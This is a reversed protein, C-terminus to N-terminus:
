QRAAAKERLFELVVLDIQDGELVRDELNEVGVWSRFDESLDGMSSANEARGYGLTALHAGIEAALSADVTVAEQETEGPFYLRHLRLLRGIEDIPAEHDDVRLDIYRDLWNGYSGRERAVYLAASQQGRRDGGQEQGAVLAAILREPFRGKTSRYADAMATVVPEGALINGQCTFGDGTVHGAWDMCASGTYAAAKGSGDVIGLQRHDRGDDVSTLADVVQEASKGEALLALGDPGYSLNAWAQTAIAGSDARVWPVASGVAPFKSQVAVGFDGTEPDRAAISFTM